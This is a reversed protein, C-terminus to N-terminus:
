AVEQTSPSAPSGSPATEPQSGGPAAAPAVTETKKKDMPYIFVDAALEPIQYPDFKLAELAERFQTEVAHIVVSAKEFDTHPLIMGLKKNEKGHLGKIDSKRTRDRMVSALIELLRNYNEEGSEPPHFSFSVM